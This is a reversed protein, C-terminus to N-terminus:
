RERTFSGLAELDVSAAARELREVAGAAAKGHALM